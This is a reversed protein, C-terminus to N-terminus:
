RYGRRPKLRISSVSSDIGSFSRDIKFIWSKRQLIIPRIPHSYGFENKTAVSVVSLGSRQTTRAMLNFVIIFLAGLALTHWFWDYTSIKQISVKGEYLTLGTTAAM